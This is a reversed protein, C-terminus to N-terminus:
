LVNSSFLASQIQPIMKRHVLSRTCFCGAIQSSNRVTSTECLGLKNQEVIAPIQLKSNTTIQRHTGSDFVYIYIFNYAGHMMKCYTYLGLLHM